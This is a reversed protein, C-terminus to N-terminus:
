FITGIRRLLSNHFTKFAVLFAMSRTLTSLGRFTELAKFNPMRGLFACMGFEATFTNTKYASIFGVRRFQTRFYLALVIICWSIIILLLSENQFTKFTLFFTMSSSFTSFRRFTEFTSLNSVMRLIALMRCQAFFSNAKITSIFSM